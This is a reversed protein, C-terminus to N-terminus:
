SCVRQMVKRTCFREISWVGRGDDDLGALFMEVIRWFSRGFIFERNALRPLNLSRVRSANM